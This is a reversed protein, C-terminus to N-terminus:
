GLVQHALSLRKLEEQRLSAGITVWDLFRAVRRELPARGDYRYRSKRAGIGLAFQHHFTLGGERLIAAAM